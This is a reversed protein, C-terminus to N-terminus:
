NNYVLYMPILKTLEIHYDAFLKSGSTESLENFYKTYNNLEEVYAPNNDYYIKYNDFYIAEPKGKENYEVKLEASIFGKYDAKFIEQFPSYKLSFILYTIEGEDFPCKNYYGLDTSPDRDIAIDVTYTNNEKDYKYSDIDYFSFTSFGIFRRDKIGLREPTANYCDGNKKCLFLQNYEKIYKIYFENKIEQDFINIIKANIKNDTNSAFYFCCLYGLGFFIIFMLIIILKKYM